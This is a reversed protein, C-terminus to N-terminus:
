KKRNQKLRIIQAIRLGRPTGIQEYWKALREAYKGTQAETIAQPLNERLLECARIDPNSINLRIGTTAYADGMGDCPFVSINRKLLAVCIEQATVGTGSVDIVMSYGYQPLVPISCGENMDITKAIHKLNKRMIKEGNKIHNYDQIAALVGYQALLNTNSKGVPMRVITVAKLLDPHGALFGIRAAALGYGKAVGCTSIVHDVNCENYLASIPYHSVSQDIQHTNHTINNFIIIDHELCLNIIEILEEKTQVTGFPNVPDCIVIMKTRLSIAKKVEDPDYRYNNEKRLPIRKAIAGALNAGPEFHFYAPDTLIIEEGANLFTLMTYGIGAQAGEVGIVEFQDNRKNQFIIEAAKDRLEKILDPPYPYLNEASLNERIAEIASAPPGVFLAMAGFDAYYKPDLDTRGGQRVEDLPIGLIHFAARGSLYNGVGQNSYFLSKARESWFKQALSSVQLNSTYKLDWNRGWDTIFRTKAESM